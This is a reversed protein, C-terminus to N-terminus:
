QAKSPRYIFDFSPQWTKGGDDSSTGAQEVSGDALKTYTMRTMQTPHGPQPWTGTLIMSKGDWGGTFDVAANSSDTWFQRWAKKAPVYTSLSGGDGGSVLPMWNERIACGAYRSEILSHAVLKDPATTPYVDWRGIWFDFQHNEAGTCAPPPLAAAAYVNTACIMTAIGAFVGVRM